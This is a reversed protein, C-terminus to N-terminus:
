LTEFKGNELYRIETCGDNPMGYDDLPAFAKESSNDDSYGEYYLNGDDDYLRFKYPMKMGVEILPISETKKSSAIFTSRYKRASTYDKTIVWM